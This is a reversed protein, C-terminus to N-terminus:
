PAAERRAPKPGKPGSPLLEVSGGAAELKQRAAASIAHVRLTLATRIEGYGLVKVPGETRRVLGAEKLARADVLAGAGFRELDKLNVIEAPKRFPNRFGVKRLRMALPMQGGEYWPRHKTGSRAGAGKNGRGSTNGKGSGTGRGVRKRRRRSGPHFTLRDLM